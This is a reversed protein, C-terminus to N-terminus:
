SASACAEAKGARSEMRREPRESVGDRPPRMVVAAAAGVASIVAFVLIAGAFSGSPAALLAALPPGVASAGNIVANVVGKVAGLSETGFYDPWIITSAAKHAGAGLGLLTGYALAGAAAPLPLLMSAFAVVMVGLSVTVAARTPVREVWLGTLYTMGVSAVAYAMFSAPVLAPAWELSTFLAIQHFIVATTVLSPLALCSLIGWFVPMRVVERLSYSTELSAQGVPDAHPDAALEEGDVAADTERRDRMRWGVLPTFVVLYAMGLVVLSGRWGALGILAYIVGPFVMQGLAYGLSVVALARGRYRYFWQVTTTLTGLGIAGQGLLRLFFFAAGLALAGEAAAFGFMALALGGLVAALYPGSPLRDAWRGLFPLCGAALLTALAYLSSLEVRTLGVDAMVSELYLSIAFSQGPSSLASALFGMAVIVWGYYRPNPFLRGWARVLRQM